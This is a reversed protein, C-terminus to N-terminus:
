RLEQVRAIVDQVEQSYTSYLPQVTEQWKDLDEVEICTVGKSELESYYKAELENTYGLVADMAEEGADKILKKDDESLANWSKESMLLIGAGFTHADKVYYPAVEYFSNSIYGTIGNEAGDVVGTQLSTYLESYSIPTPNAGLAKITDLMVQNEPVRIKLGKLDELKSVAKGTFFLNRPGEEMYSIGVMQTQAQQIDDLLEQGLDDRLVRSLHDLDKFVYPLAMANMTDVGYDPMANTTARFFDMTGIQIAQMSTKEDGLTGNFYLDVRMRGGSKEELLEKFKLAGQSMPHEEPNPEGYKFVIEATSGAQKESSGQAETKNETTSLVEKNGGSCGSLVTMAMAGAMVISILKKM